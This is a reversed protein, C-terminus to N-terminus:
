RDQSGEVGAPTMQAEAETFRGLGPPPLQELLAVRSALESTWRAMDDAPVPDGSPLDVSLPDDHRGNRLM